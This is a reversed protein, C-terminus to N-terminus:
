LVSVIILGLEYSKLIDYHNLEKFVELKCNSKWVSYLKYLNDIPVLSDGDVTIGELYEKEPGANNYKPLVKEPSKVLEKYKYKIVTPKGKCGILITNVGPNIYSIDVLENNNNVGIIDSLNDATYSVKNYEILCEKYMKKNPLSLLLGLSNQRIPCKSSKSTKIELYDKIAKPVGGITPCICLYHKVNIKLNKNLKQLLVNGLVCGFDYAIIVTNQTLCSTFQRYLEEFNIKDFNYNLINLKDGMKYNMSYLLSLITSLHGNYNNFIEPSLDNLDSEKSDTNNYLPPWIQKNDVKMISDGLGPIIIVNSYVKPTGALIGKETETYILNNPPKFVQYELQKILSLLKFDTGPNIRNLPVFVSSTHNQMLGYGSKPVIDRFTDKLRCLNISYFIIILIVIVIVYM